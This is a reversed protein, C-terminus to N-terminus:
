KINLRKNEQNIYLQASYRNEWTTIQKHPERNTIFRWKRWWKAKFQVTYLQPRGLMSTHARYRPKIRFKM